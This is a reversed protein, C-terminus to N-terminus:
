LSLLVCLLLILPTVLYSLGSVLTIAQFISIVKHQKAKFAPAKTGIFPMLNVEKNEQNLDM